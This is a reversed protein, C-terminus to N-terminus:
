AEDEATVFRAVRDWLEEFHGRGFSSGTRLWDVHEHERGEGHFHGMVDMHDAYTAYIVEGWVQSLVPVMADNDRSSPLRDYANILAERQLPTLGDASLRDESAGALLHLARFLGYMAQRTPDVGMELQARLSPPPAMTVVSGRRVGIGPHALADFLQMSEPTLQTMLTQDRQAEEFQAEVQKQREEDFDKLVQSYVQDLVGGSAWRLAGTSAIAGGLFLLAPLPISGLRILHVTALSLLRLVRQGALSTFFAALPAGRHPTALTVVTRVRRVRALAADDLRLEASASALLRADLGGTSHGVLHIPGDGEAHEVLRMALHRARDVISSTPLTDLPQVVADVGCAALREELIEKAHQFYLFDGLNTFGFFGPLLFVRHTTM